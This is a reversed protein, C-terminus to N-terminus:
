DFRIEKARGRQRSRLISFFFFFYNMAVSSQVNDRELKISPEAKTPRYVDRCRDISSHDARGNKTENIIIGNAILNILKDYRTEKWIASLLTITHVYNRSRITIFHPEANYYNSIETNNIGNFHFNIEM